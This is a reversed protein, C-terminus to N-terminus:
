LACARRRACMPRTDSAVNASILNKIKNSDSLIRGTSRKRVARASSFSKEAANLFRSVKDDSDLIVNHFISETAM